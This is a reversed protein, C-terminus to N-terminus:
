ERFFRALVLAEVRRYHLKLLYDSVTMGATYRGQITEAALDIEGTAVLELLVAHAHLDMLGATDEYDLQALHLAEARDTM